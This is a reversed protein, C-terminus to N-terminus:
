LHRLHFSKPRTLHEYGVSSLTCGRGSDKVGVWALEPDLYDCRNMFVTGTELRRGIREAREIDSTWIAATLGFRSDNMNAVAEDDDSVKMIGIAPGFTEELMLGMEHSVDVLVQPALYPLGRDAGPFDKAILAQAGAAVAEDIQAQITEANRKRVVPGLTTAEDRPDGLVYKETLAVFADVFRDYLSEHVYIREIACCSQGSNFFAGDVLNEVAHDFNADPAVYAM